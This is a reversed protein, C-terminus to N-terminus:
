VRQSIFRGVEAQRQLDNFLQEVERTRQKLAEGYRETVEGLYRVILEVQAQALHAQAQHEAIQKHQVGIGVQLGSEVLSGGLQIGEVAMEVRTAFRALSVNDSGVGVASRMSQGLSASASSAAQRLSQLGGSAAQPLMAGLKAGVKSAVSSALSGAASAALAVAVTTAVVAAIMAAIEAVKRAQDGFGLAKLQAAYLETFVKMMFQMVEMLSEMAKAMFSSGTAQEVLMDTLTLGLGVAAVVVKVSVASTAAAGAATGAATAATGAGAAVVGGGAVAAGAGATAVVLVAAAIAVGVWKFICGLANSREAKRAEEELKEQQATQLTQYLERSALEKEQAADGLLEIIQLRLLLARAILPALPSNPPKGAGGDFSSEAVQAELQIARAGLQEVQAVLQRQREVATNMVQQQIEVQGRLGNLVQLEQQYEPSEPSLGALREESQRLLQRAQELRAALQELQGQGQEAQAQAQDFAQLAGTFEASLQELAKQRAGNLDQLMSLQQKLKHNGVEGLLANVSAMLAIFTAQSDAHSRPAALQPRGAIAQASGTYQVAALAQSAIHRFELTQAAIGAAARYDASPEPLPQRAAKFLASLDM